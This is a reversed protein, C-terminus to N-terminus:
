HRFIVYGGLYVFTTLVVAWFIGASIMAYVVKVRRNEFSAALLTGVVPSLLIPTLMATGWLGYKRWLRVKRRNSATFVRNVPFFRRWVRNKLYQGFYTMVVATAAMGLAACLGTELASLGRMYGAIPGFVFKISSVGFVFVYDLVRSM